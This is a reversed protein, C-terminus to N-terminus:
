AGPPGHPLPRFYLIQQPAAALEDDLEAPVYQDWSEELRQHGRMFGRSWQAIPAGADFNEVVKRRFRCEAPHTARDAAVTANVANYLAM